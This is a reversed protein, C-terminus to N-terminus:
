HDHAVTAGGKFDPICVGGILLLITAYFGIGIVFVASVDFSVAVLSSLYPALAGGLGGCIYMFTIHKYNPKDIYSIGWAIFSHYIAAVALGFLYAGVTIWDITTAFAFISQSVCGLSVAVTIFRLVSLKLVIFTSVFSGILGALYIKSILAGAEEQSVGFNSQLYSPLWIIPTLKGMLALFLCVGAITLGISWTSSGSDESRRTNGGTETRTKAFLAAVVVTLAIFSLALYGSSWSNGSSIFAAGVISFSMGGANFLADQAVLMSARGKESWNDSIITSAACVGVGCAIGVVALGAPVVLFEASFHMGAVAGCVLLYCVVLIYRLTFQRLIYLSALNGALAGGLLWSFQAAAQTRPVDFFTAIPQILIGIQGIFAALVFPILLSIVALNLKNFSVSKGFM